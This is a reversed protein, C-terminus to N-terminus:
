MINILTMLDIDSTDLLRLKIGNPYEFEINKYNSFQKPQIEIFSSPFRRHRKRKASTKYYVGKWYKFKSSPLNNEKSIQDVTQIGKIYQEVLAFMKKQLEQNRSRM